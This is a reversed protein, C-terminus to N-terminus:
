ESPPANNASSIATSYILLIFWVWRSHISPHFSNWLRRGELISPDDSRCLGLTAKLSGKHTAEGSCKWQELAFLRFRTRYPDALASICCLNIPRPDTNTPIQDYASSSWLTLWDHASRVWLPYSRSSIRCGSLVRQTGSEYSWSVILSSWSLSRVSSWRGTGSRRLERESWTWLNGGVKGVM